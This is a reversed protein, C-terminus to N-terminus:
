PDCSRNASPIAAEQKSRNQGTTGIPAFIEYLGLRIGTALSMKILVDDVQIEADIFESIM